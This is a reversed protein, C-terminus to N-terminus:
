AGLRRSNEPGDEKASNVKPELGDSSNGLGRTAQPETNVYNMDQM